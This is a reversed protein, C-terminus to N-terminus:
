DRRGATQNSVQGDGGVCGPIPAQHCKRILVSSAAADPRDFAGAAETGPQGGMQELLGLPDDLDVVGLTRCATVAGLGVLEVGKAGGTFREGALVQGLGASAASAFRQADQEGRALVRHARAGLRDALQLVQHDAGRFAQTSRQV